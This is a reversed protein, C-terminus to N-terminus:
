LNQNKVKKTELNQLVLENLVQWIESEKKKTVTVRTAFMSKLEV